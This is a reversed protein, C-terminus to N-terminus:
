FRAFNIGIRKVSGGTKLETSNLWHQRTKKQLYHACMKGSTKSIQSTKPEYIYKFRFGRFYWFFTSHRMKKWRWALWNGCWVSLLWQKMAECGKMRFGRQTTAMVSANATLVVMGLWCWGQQISFWRLTVGCPPKVNRSTMVLVDILMKLKKIDCRPNPQHDIM